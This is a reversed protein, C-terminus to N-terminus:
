RSRTRQGRRSAPRPQTPAWTGRTPTAAMGRCHAWTSGMRTGTVNEDTVETNTLTADSLLQYYQAVATVSVDTVETKTSTVGSRLRCYQAFATVIEDTVDSLLQYYQAVATASVATVETNTLTVGSLLRCYNSPLPRSARM